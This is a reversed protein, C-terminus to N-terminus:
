RATSHWCIAAPYRGVEIVHEPGGHEQVAAKVKQFIDTAIRVNMQVFGLWMAADHQNAKAVYRLGDGADDLAHRALRLQQKLYPTRENDLSSDLAATQARQEEIQKELSAQM